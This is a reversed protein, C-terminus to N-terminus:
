SVNCTGEKKESRGKSCLLVRLMNLEVLVSMSHSVVAAYLKHLAFTAVPPPKSYLEHWFDKMTKLSQVAIMVEDVLTITPYDKPLQHWNSTVMDRTPPRVTPPGQM